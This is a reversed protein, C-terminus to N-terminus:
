TKTFFLVLTISMRGANDKLYKSISSISLSIHRKVTERSLQMLEAIQEHRMGEQRSLLYARQQQPPLLSVARELLVFFREPDPQEFPDEHHHSIQEADLSTHLSANRALDRLVNYGHNRAIIFLYSGFDSIEPLSARKAWVKIFTEQVIEETLERSRTLKLVYAALRVHHAHFLTRFAREDGLSVRQLLDQESDPKNREM